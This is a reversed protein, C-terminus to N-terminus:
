MKLHLRDAIAKRIELMRANEEETAEPLAKLQEDNKYARYEREAERDRYASVIHSKHILTGRWVGDDDSIAVISEKSSLLSEAKRLPLTVKRGSTLEFTVFNM